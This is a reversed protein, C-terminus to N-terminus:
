SVTRLYSFIDQEKELTLKKKLRYKHTRVSDQNIGLLNTIDNNTMNMKIYCCYKLDKPSLSPHKRALTLLFNPNTQEFYIKFDDWLKTDNAVAKISNVISMLERRIADNVNPYLYSIRTKVKQLIETKQDLEMVYHSLERTSDLINKQLAAEAFGTITKTKTETKKLLFISKIRYISFDTNNIHKYPHTFIICNKSWCTSECEHNQTLCLIPINIKNLNIDNIIPQNRKFGLIILDPRLSKATNFLDSPRSVSATSFTFDVILSLINLVQTLVKTDDCGILISRKELM